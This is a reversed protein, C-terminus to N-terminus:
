HHAHASVENNVSSGKSGMMKCKKDGNMMKGAMEIGFKEKAEIKFNLMSKGKEAQIAAKQDILKNINKQNPKEATMEREIQLNIEKIDLMAKQMDARHKNHLDNYAAQQDPTLNVVQNMMRGHEMDVTDSNGHASHDMTQAFAGASVVVALIAIIKKM